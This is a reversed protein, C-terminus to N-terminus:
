SAKQTQKRIVKRPKSTTRESTAKKTSKATAKTAKTATTAKPPLGRESRAAARYEGFQELLTKPSAINAVLTKSKQTKKSTDFEVIAYNRPGVKIGLFFPGDGRGKFRPVSVWVHQAGIAEIMPEWREIWRRHAPSMADLAKKHTTRLTAQKAAKKTAM